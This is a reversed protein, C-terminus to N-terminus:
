PVLAMSLPLCDLYKLRNPITDRVSSELQASIRDARFRVALYPGLTEALDERNLFDRAYTSLAVVYQDIM